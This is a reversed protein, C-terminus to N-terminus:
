AVLGLLSAEINRWDQSLDLTYVRIDHGPVRFRLDAHAEAAAYLLIGSCTRNAAGKGELNKLYAYLQYLNDSHVKEAEFHRQFVESKFKTEVVIKLGSTRHALCVDTQMKPLFRDDPGATATEWAIDESWVRYERAERDYFNRVFAQFLRRMRGEDRIFDHFTIPGRGETTLWHDHVIRCVDLLLRYRKNNRTLRIEGFHRTRLSLEDVPPFRRFVVDLEDRIAPELTECCLLRRITARLIQNHLVNPTRDDFACYAQAQRLLVKQVSPALLVKGRISRTTEEYCRYGQDVGRKLLQATGTALVKAFLDSLDKFDDVGASVTDKQDLSDWAYCLLYYINKIPITMM